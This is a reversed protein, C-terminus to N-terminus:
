GGPGTGGPPPPWRCALSSAPPRSLRHACWALALFSLPFAAVILPTENLTWSVLVGTAVASSLVNVLLITGCTPCNVFVAGLGALFAASSGGWPSSDHRFLAMSAIINTSFFATGAALLLITEPNITLEFHPTVVLILGPTIGPYGCCLEPTLFPYGSAPITSHVTVGLLNTFFGFFLGYLVATGVYWPLAGPRRLARALAHRRPTTERFEEGSWLVIARHLGAVVFVLGMAIGSYVLVAFLTWLAQIRPAIPADSTWNGPFLLLPLLILGLGTTVWVTSRRDPLILPAGTAM